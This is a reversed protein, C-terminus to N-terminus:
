VFSDFSNGVTDYDGEQKRSELLSVLALTITSLAVDDEFNREYLIKVVATLVLILTKSMKEAQSPGDAKLTAAM